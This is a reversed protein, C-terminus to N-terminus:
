DILDLDQEDVYVLVCRCNIVNRPGGKPDGPYQMLTGNISFDEDMQRVQGNARAHSDRTRGDSVSVWRKVLKQDLQESVQKNYFHSAHSAASHTETRAIRAARAISFNRIQQTIKKGIEPLSLNEKERLRKILRVIARSQNRTLTEFTIVRDRFYEKYLREFTVATGFTTFDLDKQSQDYTRINYLIFVEFVKRINRDISEALERGLRQNNIDENFQLGSSLENGIRAANANFISRLERFFGKELNDRLRLQTRVEYRANFRRRGYQKKESSNIKVAQNNVSM